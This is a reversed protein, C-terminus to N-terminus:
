SKPILNDDLIDDKAPIRIGDTFNNCLECLTVCLMNAEMYYSLFTIKYNMFLVIIVTYQNAICLIGLLQSLPEFLLLSDMCVSNYAPGVFIFDDLLHTVGVIGFRKQLFLKIACRFKEFLQCSVSYGM